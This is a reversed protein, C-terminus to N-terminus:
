LHIMDPEQVNSHNTALNYLIMDEQILKATVSMM